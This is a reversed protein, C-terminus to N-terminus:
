DASAVGEYFKPLPYGLGRMIRELDPEEEPHYRRNLNFRHFRAWAQWKLAAVTGKFESLQQYINLGTQRAALKILLVGQTENLAKIKDEFRSRVLAEKERIYARREKGSLQGLKTNLENFLVTAEELYPLITTVYYRMQNYHYRATDNAWKRTSNVDHNGLRVHYVTDIGGTQAGAPLVAGLCIFLLLLLAKMRAALDLKIGFRCPVANNVSQLSVIRQLCKVISPM